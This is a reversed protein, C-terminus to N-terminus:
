TTSDWSSCRHPSPPSPRHISRVPDSPRGRTPSPSPITPEVNCSGTLRASFTIPRGGQAPSSSSSLVIPPTPHREYAGMDLSNCFIRRKGDLDAASMDPALTDCAGITPSARQEHFDGAASNHFLPQSAINGTGFACGSAPPGRRMTSQYRRGCPQRV